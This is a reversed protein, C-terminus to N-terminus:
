RGTFRPERKSARAALAEPLAALALALGGGVAAGHVAAIVPFPLHRIQYRTDLARM